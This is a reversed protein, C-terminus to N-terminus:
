PEDEDPQDAVAVSNRAQRYARTTFTMTGEENVRGSREDRNQKEYEQYAAHLREEESLGAWPHNDLIKGLSNTIPQFLRGIYELHAEWIREFGKLEESKSPLRHHRLKATVAEIADECLIRRAKGESTGTVEEITLFHMMVLEDEIIKLGTLRDHLKRDAVLARKLDLRNVIEKRNSIWASKRKRGESPMNELDRLEVLIPLLESLAADQGQQFTSRRGLKFGLWGTFAAVVLSAGLAAIWLWFSVPAIGQLWNWM